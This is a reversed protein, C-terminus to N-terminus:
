AHLERLHIDNCSTLYGEWRVSGSCTGPCLCSSPCPVRYPVSRAYVDKYPQERWALNQAGEPPRFRGCWMWETLNAKSFAVSDIFSAQDEPHIVNTIKSCGDPSTVEQPTLGYVDYSGRSIYSFRALGRCDMEYVYAAANTYSDFLSLYKHWKTPCTAVAHQTINKYYLGALIERAEAEEESSNSPRRETACLQLLPPLTRVPACGPRLSSAQRSAPTPQAPKADQIDQIEDRLKDLTERQITSNTM